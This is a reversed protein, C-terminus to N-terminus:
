LYDFVLRWPWRNPEKTLMRLNTIRKSTRFIGPFGVTKLRLITM